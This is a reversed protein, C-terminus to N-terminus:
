ASADHFYVPSEAGQDLIHGSKEGERQEGDTHLSASGRPPTGLGRSVPGAARAWEETWCGRGTQRAHRRGGVM